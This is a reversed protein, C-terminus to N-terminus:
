GGHDVLHEVVGGAVPVTFPVDACSENTIQHGIGDSQQGTGWCFHAVYAGDALQTRTYCASSTGACLTGPYVFGDFPEDRQHGAEVAEVIPLAAGCVPCGGCDECSCYGCNASLPLRAGSADLLRVWGQPGELTGTQLYVKEAGDDSVFRIRFVFTSTEGADVSSTGADTVGGTPESSCAIAFLATAAAIKRMRRAQWM